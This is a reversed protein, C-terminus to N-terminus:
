LAENPTASIGAALMTSQFHVLRITDGEQAYMAVLLVYTHSSRKRLM